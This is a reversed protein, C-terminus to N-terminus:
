CGSQESPIKLVCEVSCTEWTVECRFAPIQNASLLKRPVAIFDCIPMRSSPSNFKGSDLRGTFSRFLTQVWRGCSLCEPSRRQLGQSQTVVGHLVCSQLVGSWGTTPPRQLRGWQSVRLYGAQLQCLGCWDWCM